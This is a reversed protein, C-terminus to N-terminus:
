CKTYFPMQRTTTASSTSAPKLVLGGRGDLRACLRFRWSIKHDKAPGRKPRPSDGFGTLLPRPSCKKIRTLGTAGQGPCRRWGNRGQGGGDSQPLRYSPARGGARVCRGAVLDLIWACGRQQLRRHLVSTPDGGSGGGGLILGEAASDGRWLPETKLRLSCNIM